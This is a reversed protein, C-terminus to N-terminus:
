ITFKWMTANRGTLEQYGLAYIHLQTETVKEPQARDTSKLDVIRMEDDMGAPIAYGKLARKNLASERLISLASVYIPTDRWCKLQKGKLGTSTTLGRKSSHRDIFLRQQVKNMIEFKSYKPVETKLLDLRWDHITGVYMETLGAIEGLGKRCRDHIREKLEAAAKKGFRRL